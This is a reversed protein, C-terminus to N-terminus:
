GRGRHAGGGESGPDGGVRVLNRWCRFVDEPRLAPAARWPDAVNDTVAAFGLSQSATLAGHNGLLGGVLLGTAHTLLPGYTWGERMSFLVNAPHQVLDEFARRVRGLADPHIHNWTAAFLDEDTAWGDRLAGREELSRFVPVLGLPDGRDPRYRYEDGRWAVRARACSADDRAGFVVCGADTKAFSLEIGPADAAVRAVELAREAHCHVVGAGVDGCPALVAGGPGPNGVDFGARALRDALDASGLHEVPGFAMGHDSCLVAGPLEGHRQQYERRAGDVSAMVDRVADRLADAGSFHAVGDTASLYGLWPGGENAFRHTIWRIQAYSLSARLVYMATLPLFGQPRARLPAIAEEGEPDGPYGRVEGRDPDFYRAEYGPPKAPFSGRLLSPVAVETLSPFVAVMPRPESFGPMDGAEWLERAMAFPVADVILFFLPAPM